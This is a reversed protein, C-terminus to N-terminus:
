RSIRAAAKVQAPIAALLGPVLTRALSAEAKTTARLGIAREVVPNNLAEPHNQHVM